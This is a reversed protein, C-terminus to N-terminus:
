DLILLCPDIFADINSPGIDNLIWLLHLMFSARPYLFSVSDTKLNQMYVSRIILFYDKHHSM